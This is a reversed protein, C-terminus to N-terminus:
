ERGADEDLVAKWEFGFDTVSVQEFRRMRRHSHLSCLFPDSIMLLRRLDLDVFGVRVGGAVFQGPQMADNMIGSVDSYQMETNLM